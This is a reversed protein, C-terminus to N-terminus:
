GEDVIGLAEKGDVFIGELLHTYNIMDGLKEDIQAKTPYKGEATDEVMDQISIIHKSFMGCLAQAPTEENMAAARNFNHLRDGNRSYEEGKIILTAKTHKQRAKVLKKFEHHNM